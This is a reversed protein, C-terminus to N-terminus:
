IAPPWSNIPMSGPARLQGKAAKAFLWAYRNHFDDEDEGDIPKPGWAFYVGSTIRSAALDAENFNSAAFPSERNGFPTFYGAEHWRYDAVASLKAYWLSVQWTYPRRSEGNTVTLSSSSAVDWSSHAFTGPWVPEGGYRGVELVASGLTIQVACPNKKLTGCAAVPANLHIKEWLRNVNAALADHADLHLQQRENKARLEAAKKAEAIQIESAVSAGAAALDALPNSKNTSPSKVVESLVNLVRAAGPRAAPPKRAMLAILGSLRQDSCQFSPLQESQHQREPDLRFPPTGAFLEYAICSLAYIDTATTSREYRWQEPAAYLPSLCGKLTQSSTADEVFRAIGFDAIKWKGEHWLVNDPKLDRHVIKPVEILGSVIQILIDAAETANYVGKRTLEQRLSFEAAPMVVFYGGSDADIGADIFGIVHEFKKGQLDRAIDIERNGAASATLHLKKVAVVVKNADTGRFVQGFGGPKGLPQSQDYEFM